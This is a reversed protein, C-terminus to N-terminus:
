ADISRYRANVFCYIGYLMLGIGMFGILWPGYAEDRLSALAQGLGKANDPNANIAAMTVLYSIILFTIARTAIGVQAFRTAFTEETSSMQGTKWNDKFKKSIARYGQYLGVGGLVLGIAGIFYQGWPQSMIRAVLEEKGGSGGSGGGGGFWDTLTLAYVALSAYVLGSIIFGIRQVWGGADDGKDETDSFGQVLRWISYGILGVILLALLVNGFPQSAIERIANRTGAVEGGGFWGFITGAALLGVTGYVVGKAAYGARALWEVKSTTHMRNAEIEM